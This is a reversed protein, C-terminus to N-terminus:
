FDEEKGEGGRERKENNIKELAYSLQLKQM